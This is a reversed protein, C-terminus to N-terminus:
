RVHSAPASVSRAQPVRRITWLSAGCAIRLFSAPALVDEGDDVSGIVEVLIGLHDLTVDCDTGPQPNGARLVLEHLAEREDTTGNRAARRDLDQRPDQELGVTVLKPQGRRVHLKRQASGHRRLHLAVTGHHQGAACEDVDRPQQRSVVDRDLMARRLRDNVDARAGRAVCEVRVVGLVERPQRLEGLRLRERDVTLRQELRDATDRARSRAVLRAGHQGADEDLEGAVLEHHRGGVRVAEGHLLRREVRRSGLELGDDGAARQLLQRPDGSVAVLDRDAHLLVLDEERDPADPERRAPDVALERVVPLKQRLRELM